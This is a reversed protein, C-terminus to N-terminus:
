PTPASQLVFPGNALVACQWVPQRAQYVCLHDKQVETGTAYGLGFNDEAPAYLWEGVTQPPAPPTPLYTPTLDALTAPYRGNSARYSELATVITQGIRETSKEPSLSQGASISGLLGIHYAMVMVVATVRRWKALFPILIAAFAVTTFTTYTLLIFARVGGTGGQSALYFFWGYGLVALGMSIKIPRWVIKAPSLLSGHVLFLSGVSLGIPLSYVLFSLLNSM